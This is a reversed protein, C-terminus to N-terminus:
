AAACSPASVSGQFDQFMACSFWRGSSAIRRCNRSTRVYGLRIPDGDCSCFAESCREDLLLKEILGVWCGPREHAPTACGCRDPTADFHQWPAQVLGPPHDKPSAKQDADLHLAIAVAGDTLRFVCGRCLTADNSPQPVAVRQALDRGEHDQDL